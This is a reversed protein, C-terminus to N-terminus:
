DEVCVVNDPYLSEGFQAAATMADAMAGAALLPQGDM